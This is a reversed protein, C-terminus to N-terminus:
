VCVWYFWRILHNSVLFISNERRKNLINLNYFNVFLKNQFIDSHHRWDKKYWMIWSLGLSLSLRLNRKLLFIHSFHITNSCRFGCSRNSVKIALFFHCFVKSKIVDYEISSFFNFHRESFKKWNHLILNVVYWYILTGTRKTELIEIKHTATRIFFTCFYTYSIIQVFFM